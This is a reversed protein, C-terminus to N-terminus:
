SPIRQFPFMFIFIYVVVALYFIVVLKPLKTDAIMYAIAACVAPVAGLFYFLYTVRQGLIVAPYFPLYTVSFLALSVLSLDDRRQLYNYSCYLLAPITLFSIAPNMAGLFSVSVYNSPTAGSTQVSVRLYPITIQNL